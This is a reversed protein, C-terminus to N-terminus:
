PALGPIPGPAVVTTTVVDARVKIAHEDFDHDPTSADVTIAAGATVNFLLAIGSEDTVTVTDDGVGTGVVYRVAGADPSTVSAGAVPQGLCDVVIVGVFGHSADQTAGALVPLFPYVTTSVMLVPVAGQDNALPSPPYVYTDKYGNHTGKLYGDIPAGGTDLTFEYAGVDTAADSTTSGLQADATDSVTLAVAGLPTQGNTSIENAHGGVVISAPATTPYAHGICGYPTPEADPGSTDADIPATDDGGGGGGGCGGALLM